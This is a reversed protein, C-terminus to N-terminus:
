ADRKRSRKEDHGSVGFRRQLERRVSELPIELQALAVFTHFLLDAVEHVVHPRDGERCAELVEGSEEAVKGLIVELGRDFLSKTYSKAADSAKRAEIVAAVRDFVDITATEPAIPGPDPLARWGDAELAQSFCSRTGTHCAVATQEVLALLTDGDCDLRLEVLRQLHGSSEGKKWLARRSRSYYHLFGSAITEEIAERNAWAVMLVERTRVDQAVVPILGNADFRLAEYISSEM